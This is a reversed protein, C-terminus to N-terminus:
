REAYYRKLAAAAKVLEDGFLNQLEVDSVVVDIKGARELHQQREIRLTAKRENYSRLCLYNNADDTNENYSKDSKLDHRM